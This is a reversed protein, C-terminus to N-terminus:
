GNNIRKFFCIFKLVGYTRKVTIAAAFPDAMSLQGPAPIGKNDNCM